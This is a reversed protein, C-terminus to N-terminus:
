MQTVCLGQFVKKSANFASKFYKQFVQFELFFAVIIIKSITESFNDFAISKADAVPM